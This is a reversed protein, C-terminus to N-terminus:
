PLRRRYLSRQTLAVALAILIGIAFYRVAGTKFTVTANFIIFLLFAHLCWTMARGRRAYHEIGFTWWAIADTAWVAAFLYNVYVGEGFPWGLLAETQRATDDYAQQHSWGHVWHFAAALHGLLLGCGATWLWRCIRGNRDHREAAERDLTRATARVVFLQGFVAAAYLLLSLRVTWRVLQDESM